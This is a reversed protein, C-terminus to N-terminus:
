DAIWTAAASIQSISQGSKAAVIVSDGPPIVVRYGDLDYQASGNLGAVFSLIPTYDTLNLTGTETSINALMEAQRYWIQNGTALQASYFIMVQLPDNGQFAISLDQLRLERTNIKGELTIPNRVAFVQHITGSGLSSKQTSFSRTYDNKQISGEIAAYGSAGRVTAVSAAGINYAVYSLKFNPNHSWPSTRTNTTVISHFTIMNGNIADEIAFKIIGAGLWRFNIQFVNLKTPDITMRSPGKGDLTDGNFDEQYIWTEQIAVGAQSRAFTGTTTTGTYSYTGNLPGTGTALFRVDNDKQEVIWGAFTARAIRAATQAATEGGVLSVNFSVSNLVITVTGTTATGSITLTRIEARSEGNSLMVGFRGNNMGVQVASEQNGFGARLSTGTVAGEFLATFRALAGQGPRYRLHRRSRVVGYSYLSTGCSAYWMSDTTTGYSGGLASYTQFQDTYLSYVGDLQIVPTPQIAIPEGFASIATAGPTIINGYRDAWMNVEYIDDNPQPKRKSQRSKSYQAM